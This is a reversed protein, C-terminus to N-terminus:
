RKRGIYQFAESMNGNMTPVDIVRFHTRRFPSLLDEIWELSHHRLVAGEPLEFVGFKGYLSEFQDYRNRNRADNQIPYDSVYLVGDPRLVRDVDSILTRQGDDTPICTLVAFLLVADFTSPAFPLGGDEWVRLDAKPHLRRGREIMSRSIDVGIVNVYGQAKLDAWTRGYGCGLDLIDAAKPVCECFRERDLPHTFQKDDAVRNWYQTQRELSSMRM